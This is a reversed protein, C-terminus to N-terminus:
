PRLRRLRGSAASADDDGAGDLRLTNRGAGKAAYLAEDARRLLTEREVPGAAPDLRVGGISVTVVGHRSERHPMQLGAVGAIATRAIDAMEEPGVGELLLAFEEGGYRAVFGSVPEVAAKLATAVARLAGDGAPHGYTDNFLKFHDIDVLLLAFPTGDREAQAARRRFETEFARRNYIDTLGDRSALDQLRQNMEIFQREHRKLQTIDTCLILCTGDEAPKSRAAFWRGDALQFQQTGGRTLLTAVQGAAAARDLGAPGAAGMTEMSAAIVDRLPAGPQAVGAAGPFMDLYQQNCLVLREEGDIMVLADAMNALAAALRQRTSELELGLQKEATIDRNHTVLGSLKGSRDFLPVKLTALWGATGDKLRYTQEFTQPIRAAQVQLEAARFGAAVDAPFCDADSRGILAEPSAAGMLRATAPNAIVFRGAPDKINLCDPLSEIVRRYMRDSRQLRRLNLEQLMPVGGLFTSIVTILPLVLRLEEPVPSVARAGIVAISCVAALGLLLATGALGVLPPLRWHKMLRHMTLGAMYSLWLVYIGAGMTVGGSQFRYLGAVLVSVFGVLPGGFLSALGIMMMRLDVYAGGDLRYPFMMLVATGAGFLLGFMMQNSFRSLRPVLTRCGIWIQIVGLAIITNLLLGQWLPTYM